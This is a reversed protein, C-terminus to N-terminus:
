PELEKELSLILVRFNLEVELISLELPKERLIMCSTRRNSIEVHCDLYRHMIRNAHMCRVASILDYM